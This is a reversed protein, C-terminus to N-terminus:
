EASNLKRFMRSIEANIRDFRVIEDTKKPLIGIRYNKDLKEKNLRIAERFIRKIRNRDVAKKFKRSVFVGFKFQGTEEWILTFYDTFM